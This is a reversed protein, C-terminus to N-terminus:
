PTNGDKGRKGMFFYQSINATPGLVSLVLLQNVSQQKYNYSRATSTDSFIPLFHFYFRLQPWTTEDYSGKEEAVGGARSSCTESESMCVESTKHQETRLLM